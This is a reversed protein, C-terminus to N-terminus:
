GRRRRGFAQEHEALSSDDGPLADADRSAGTRVLTPPKPVIPPPTARAARTSDAAIRTSTPRQLAVLSALEMGFSIDDLGALKNALAGDKMIAYQLHESQPHAFIAAVRAPGIKVGAGAGSTLVTDFDPYAARGKARTSEVTENFTSVARHAALAQTVRADIDVAEGNAEQAKAWKNFAHMREIEWDNYDATPHEELYKDFSPFTFKEPKAAPEAAPKPPEAAAPVRAKLEDRERVAADREAKITDRETETTRWKQTLDKIRPVDEATARQSQARHRPKVFKGTEDRETSRDDPEGDPDAAARRAEPSFSAEHESLGGDDDSDPADPATEPAGAGLGDASEYLPSAVPGLLFRLSM